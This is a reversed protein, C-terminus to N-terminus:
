KIKLKKGIQLTENGSLGNLKKIKEVTTGNRKAISWLNDGKRITYHGDGSAAAKTGTANTKGKGPAAPQKAGALNNIVPITSRDRQHIDAYAHQTDTLDITYNTNLPRGQDSLRHKFLWEYTKKLYFIRAPAGHNAGKLKTYILRTPEGGKKMNAVVADSNKIPVDRDATGHFIWLPVKLLGTLDKVTGGGCMAIAAAIRDPYTATFDITGYGGLSMGVVYIRDKDITNHHNQVWEVIDMVKSPAWSGGPNQPAMVYADIERGRRLADLPGYNLVRNLNNGCLSAGHLFVILPKAQRRTDPTKTISEPTFLWFRYGKDAIKEHAVIEQARCLPLACVLLTILLLLKRM